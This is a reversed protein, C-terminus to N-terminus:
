CLGNKLNEKIINIAAEWGLAVYTGWGWKHCEELFEVQNPQLKSKTPDRRKMEIALNLGLVIIDSAGPVMGKAKKKMVNHYVMTNTKENGENEIHLTIKAINPYDRRLVNFFTILEADEKPCDGRYNINGAVSLWNPFVM